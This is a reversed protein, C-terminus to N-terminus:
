DPVEAGPDTDRRRFQIRGATTDSGAAAYDGACKEYLMERTSNNAAFDKHFWINQIAQKVEPTFAPFLGTQKPKRCLALVTFFSYDCGDERGLRDAWALAENYSELYRYLTRKNKGLHEESFEEAYQTRGRDDYQLFKQIIGRLEIGRYYNEKYTSMYWELDTGVYWPADARIDAPKETEPNSKAEALLRLKEREKWANRASKSLSSVAVMVVERGGNEPVVTKVLYKDRKRAVSKQFADYKMGELEAGIELTVYAEM